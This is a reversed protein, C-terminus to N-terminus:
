INRAIYLTQSNSNVINAPIHISVDCIHKSVKSVLTTARAGRVDCCVLTHVVRVNAAVRCTTCM